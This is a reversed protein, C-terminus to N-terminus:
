MLPAFLRFFTWLAKTRLPTKKLTQPDIHKSRSLDDKFLNTCEKGFEPSYFFANLEFHLSFSRSDINTSGITATKGDIVLMKAHIFGNYKWFQVGYASLELIYSYAAQKVYWKDWNGPVIVQVDLGSLAAIKLASFFEADPTFYPSEIYVTKKARNIMHILADRIEDNKADDPGSSVIQMPVSHTRTVTRALSGERPPSSEHPVLATDPSPPQGHDDMARDDGVTATHWDVLFQKQLLAVAPGCVRIHTDRWYYPRETSANAYEDGINMGGFYGINGDIVVIKRHNRYNLPFLNFPSVPFFRSVQGGAQILPLFLRPSTSISGVHDYLLRVQVGRAAREALLSVLHRGIVDNKFIFYSLHISKEALQIEEFLMPYKEQGSTLITVENHITVPSKGHVLNMHILSSIESIGPHTGTKVLEELNTHQSKLIHAYRANARSTAEAMRKTRTFFSGSLLIYLLVGLGPIFAIALIWTFRRAPTSREFFLIFFISAITLIYSILLATSSISM